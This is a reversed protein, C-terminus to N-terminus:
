YSGGIMAPPIMSDDTSDGSDSGERSPGDLKSWGVARSPAMLKGTEPYYILTEDLPYITPDLFLPLTRSQGDLKQTDVTTLPADSIAVRSWGGLQDGWPDPFTPGSTPGGPPLPPRSRSVANLKDDDQGPIILFRSTGLLNRLSAVSPDATEPITKKVDGLYTTLEKKVNDALRCNEHNVSKILSDIADRDQTMTINNVSHLLNRVFADEVSNKKVSFKPVATRSAGALRNEAEFKALLEKKGLKDLVGKIREQAPVNGKM